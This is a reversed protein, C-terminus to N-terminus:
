HLQHTILQRVMRAQQWDIIRALLRDLADHWHV